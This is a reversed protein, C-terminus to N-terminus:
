IEYKQLQQLKIECSVKTRKKEGHKGRRALTMCDRCYDSERERGMLIDSCHCQPCKELVRFATQEELWYRM